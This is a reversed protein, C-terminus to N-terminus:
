SILVLKVLRHEENFGIEFRGQIGSHSIFKHLASVPFKLTRGDESLVQVYKASGQYYRKYDEPSINLSFRMTHM